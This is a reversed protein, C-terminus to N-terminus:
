KDLVDRVKQLIEKPDYYNRNSWDLIGIIRQIDWDTIIQEKAEISWSMREYVEVQWKYSALQIRTEDSTMKLYDIAKDKENMAKHYESPSIMNMMEKEAKDLLLNRYEIDKKLDKITQKDTKKM